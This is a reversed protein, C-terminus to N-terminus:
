GGPAFHYLNSVLSKNRWVKLIVNVTKIIVAQMLLCSTADVGAFVGVGIVAMETADVCGGLVAGVEWGCREDM